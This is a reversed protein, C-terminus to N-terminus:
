AKAGGGLKLLDVKDHGKGCQWLLVQREGGRKAVSRDAPAGAEATTGRAVAEAAQPEPEPEPEPEPAPRPATEPQPEPWTWDWPERHHPITRRICYMEVSEVRKELAGARVARSNWDRCLYRAYAPRLRAGSDEAIRGFWKRWRHSRYTSEWAPPPSALVPPVSPLAAAEGQTPASADNCHVSTFLDIQTGDVCTGVTVFWHDDRAPRDFLFWQQHLGLGRCVAGELASPLKGVGLWGALVCAAERATRMADGPGPAESPADAATGPESAGSAEAATPAPAASAPPPPPLRSVNSRFSLAISLAAGATTCVGGLTWGEVGATGEPLAVALNTSSPLLADWVAGPLLMLWAGWAIAPFLGSRM